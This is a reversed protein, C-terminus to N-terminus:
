QYGPNMSTNPYGICTSINIAPYYLLFALCMEDTTAKGMQLLFIHFMASMLSMPNEKYMSKFCLTHFWQFILALHDLIIEHTTYNLNWLKVLVYKMLRVPWICLIHKNTEVFTKMNSTNRKINKRPCFQNWKFCMIHTIVYPWATNVWRLSKPAIPLITPASWQLRM